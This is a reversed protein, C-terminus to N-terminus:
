ARRAAEVRDIEAELIHTLADDLTDQAANDDKALGNGSPPSVPKGAPVAAAGDVRGIEVLIRRALHSVTATQLLEMTPITINFRQELAIQLEAVMLSDLGLEVLPRDADLKAPDMRVVDAVRNKVLKVALALADAAALTALRGVLEENTELEADPANEDTTPRLSDFLPSKAVLPLGALRRWNLDAIGIHPVGALLAQEMKAFGRRLQVPRVGVRETLQRLLKEDRALHGVEGIAGWSVALAPLGMSHRYQALSELATNAAAYNAQGPNGIFTIASSYMIFFDLTLDRTLDHLNLAGEIKPRIVRQYRERTMNVFSADDIVAAAHVVGRLPPMQRALDALLTRMGDRDAVDVAVERVALGASRLRAISEAADPAVAASRGVLVLNRAGRAALWEATALGFGRRGGTVLYTADGRIALGQGTGERTTARVPAVFSLVVKGIQRSQQLYTFASGAQGVPFVTFPLPRFPSGEARLSANLLEEALTPRDRLLQDVDVGHFQINHRFPQLGLKSNAYFDRKGLEIFRGYPALLALSKVLAEGALSNLVVDVGKGATAARIEDAFDLSRSDFVHEVGLRRVFARREPTGATAFILAGVSQAYQIAALGVGGAAGHILIREGARLRALHGLSYIVTLAVVPLTAAGEFSWAPPKRCVGSVPVAVHTSFAARAFGFVADGPSYEEIGPGVATVEGSFEMGLTAGAFGAEFAEEPLVRLRQLVDRFNLGAARVRVTVEGASPTPITTGQLVLGDPGDGLELRCAPAVWSAAPFGRCLRAALRAEGRLVIEDEDDTARLLEDDLLANDLRDVDILRFSVDPRENALTRCVGWLSASRPDGHPLDAFPAEAARTVVHITTALGGEADSLAQLFAILDYGPDTENSVAEAARVYIVAGDARVGRVAKLLEGYAARDGLPVLYRDDGSRAFQAGAQVAVVSQGAGRLRSILALAPEDEADHLVIWNRAPAAPRVTSVDGQRRGILISEDGVDANASLEAIEGFGADRLAAPMGGTVLGLDLVLRRFPTEHPVAVIVIGGPRLLRAAAELTNRTGSPRSYSSVAVVIDAAPAGFAAVSSEDDPDLVAFSARPDAGTRAGAAEIAAERADTFIYEGRGLPLAALILEALGFAGAGLEVVRVVRPAPTSECVQRIIAAVTITVERWVPDFTYLQEELIDDHRSPAAQEGRLRAPLSSGRRAALELRAWYAPYADLLRRWWIARDEVSTAKDLRWESGTRIATGNRELHALLSALYSARDAAIKGEEVLREVDISVGDRALMRVADLMFALALQDLAPGFERWNEPLTMAPAVTAAIQQPTPLVAALRFAISRPKSRQQWFYTSLDATLNVARLLLGAMEVLADGAEDFITLNAVIRRPTVDVLEAHCWVADSIKGRVRCRELASPLYLTTAAADEHDPLAAFIVQICSDLMAPHLRYAGLDPAIEQSPGVHGLAERAGGFLEMIGRYAPGYALGLAACRRYYGAVDVGIRIRSRADDLSARASGAPHALKAAQCVFLPEAASPATGASASIRVSGDEKSFEIELIPGAGAGLVLPRRIELGEIEVEDSGTALGTAAVAIEVFGAAPFVVSGNVVHDKLHPLVSLDVRNLWLPAATPLRNGLLPHERRGIPTVPSEALGDSFWYRQRQWPYTPLVVRPLTDPFLRRADPTAGAVYCRGLASWLAATEAERRRLTGIAVAAKGSASIIERSYLELVPHPGIEVLINIGQDLLADVAADFRVPDRINSWWYGADLRAGDLVGGSVTSVFQLSGSAPQLGRLAEDLRGKIPEMAASHFAYDLDLLRYFVGDARLMAGLAELAVMDGALTVSAPGNIAAIVLGRGFIALREAMRAAPLGVAAMRGAGATVAQLRSRAAIVRCAQDLSLAGAIHAAAVEGVSHGVTAESDIGRAQLWRALGIQLAFLAPQAFETKGYDSEDSSLVDRVSWGVYPRLAADVEDLVEAFVVDDELLARGMGLWQSGNGSFVFAIRATQGLCEGSSALGPEINGHAFTELGRAVDDRSRGAVALRHSHHSRRVLAANSIAALSPGAGGRLLAAHRAALEALAAPERASLFIPRIEGSDVVDRLASRPVGRVAVHANTGGFGFSNVGITLAEGAAPLPAPEAVVAINLEDFAIDPNPTHFHLSPPLMRHRLILVSKILGAIGSAPELHGLNTKVSGIRCPDGKARAAGFVRGLARCEIPDGASTGTGHAEVYVVSAPDIGAESYVQRLLQEQIAANPLSIGNTRGDSNVGSGLIVADIDDGDALAADLRKLVVLGGGESRVYGDAGADFAHCRGTPSLMTAKSFGVSGAPSLLANVGGAIALPIEGRRLSECAHHVAVLASSCATDITLSPGHFDYVYSIRNAIISMAGGSMSQSDIREADSRQLVAYDDSSAGVFVGVKTGGFRSPPLGGNEFAEWVLELLLRQQPDMQRAERPSIGFFAPDFKDIDPIFGGARTYMKGPASPDRSFYYDVDWRDPPVESVADVGNALLQWFEDVSPAGPFRCAM